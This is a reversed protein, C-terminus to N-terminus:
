GPFVYFNMAFKPCYKRCKLGMVPQNYALKRRDDTILPTYKHCFFYICIHSKSNKRRSFSVSLNFFHPNAM